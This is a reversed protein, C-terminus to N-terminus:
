VSGLIWFPVILTLWEGSNILAIGLAITTIPKANM